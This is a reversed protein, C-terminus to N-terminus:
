EEYKFLAKIKNNEEENEIRMMHLVSMRTREKLDLIADAKSLEKNISLPEGIEIKANPHKKFIKYIGKPKRYTVAMPLIPMDTDYALKFPGDKFERLAPYFAWCSAEPYIHLWKGENIVDKMAKYGYSLGHLSFRPLPIGGAYRYLMGSKSEAGEIWIPFEACKFYRTTFAFIIDWETTHNSISIMGKKGALKKYKRINKKGKIKLAYRIICVPKVILIMLFKLLIQVFKHKFGKLRYEFNQDYTYNFYKETKIM